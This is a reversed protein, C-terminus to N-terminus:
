SMADARCQVNATSSPATILLITGSAKCVLEVYELTRILDRLPPSDLTKSTHQYARLERCLTDSVYIHGIQGSIAGQPTKNPM